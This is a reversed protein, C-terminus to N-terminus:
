TSSSSTTVAIQEAPVNSVICMGDDTSMPEASTAISFSASVPLNPLTEMERHKLLHLGLHDSRSFAKGCSQCRFPKEGTHRRYHRTLEDSRRFAWECGEWPCSFPKEGTHVRKHAKLHSSKTYKKSCNPYDCDYTRRMKSGSSSATETRYTRTHHSALSHTNILLTYM